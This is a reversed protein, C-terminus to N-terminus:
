KIYKFLDPIKKAVHIVLDVIERTDLDALEGPIADWGQYAEMIVAKFEEDNQLKNWIAIADDVGVGDKFREWLFGGIAFVGDIAEKTEKIGAMQFGGHKEFLITVARIV